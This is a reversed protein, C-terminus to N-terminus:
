KSLIILFFVAVANVIGLEWIVLKANIMEADCIKYALRHM